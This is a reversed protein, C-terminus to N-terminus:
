EGKAEGGKGWDKLIAECADKVAGGVTVTSGSKISDGDRNFVVFKNDKIASEDRDFLFVYNARERKMTVIVGACKKGFTKIVEATQPRAGERNWTESEPVFIRPKESEQAQACLLGGTMTLYFAAHIAFRLSGRRM